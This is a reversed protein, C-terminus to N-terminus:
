APATTVYGIRVSWTKFVERREPLEVIRNFTGFLIMDESFSATVQPYGESFTSRCRHSAELIVLLQTM